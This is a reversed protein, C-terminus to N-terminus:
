GTLDDAEDDDRWDERWDDQKASDRPEGWDDEKASDGPEGWDDSETWAATAAAEEEEARLDEWAALDEWAEALDEPRMRLRASSPPLGAQIVDRLLSAMSYGPDVALARDIAVNALGGDGGIFAAYALLSAPAPVYAEEVRQLVERWLMIHEAVRDPDIRVWAEDRVRVHTLLVGLWAIQADDPLLPLRGVIERVFPVGEEVRPGGSRRRGSRTRYSGVEAEALRREARRTASRMAERIRGGLPQVTRALEGRDALVVQGAVTAQAAVVSTSIDFPTGEVPCCDPDGCRYSWWRGDQVRLLERVAVGSRVLEAEVSAIFPAVEEDAGYGVLIANEFGNRAVMESIREIAACQHDDSPRVLDARLACTGHPGGYGVVVLSDEPHFGLLYPVASVADEPSRIVLPDPRTSNTM